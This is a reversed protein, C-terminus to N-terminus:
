ASRRKQAATARKRADAVVPRPQDQGPLVRV